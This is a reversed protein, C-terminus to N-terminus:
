YGLLGSIFNQGYKKAKPLIDSNVLARGTEIPLTGPIAALRAYGQVARGLGVGPASEVIPPGKTQENLYKIVAAHVDPNSKQLQALFAPRQAPPLANYSGLQAQVADQKEQEQQPALAKTPENVGAASLARAITELAKDSTGPERAATIFDALLGAHTVDTQRQTAATQSERATTAGIDQGRTAAQYQLTDGRAQVDQGRQTVERGAGEGAIQAQHYKEQEALQAKQIGIQELAIRSETRIRNLNALDLARKIRAEEIDGHSPGIINPRLNNLNTLISTPM